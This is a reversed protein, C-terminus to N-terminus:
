RVRFPISRSATHRVDREASAELRLVYSGAQLGDLPLRLTFGHGGSPRRTARSDRQDSVERVPSSRADHVTATLGIAYPPDSRVRGNNDYVEAFLVLTDDPAFERATTPPAPLVDKLLPVDDRGAPADWPALTGDFAVGSDCVREHCNKPRRDSHRNQDPRLTLTDAASGTTLAVGSMVLPGDRFDPVELDYVVSGHSDGNASGVRIQYRGNPLDFQSVIRVGSAIVRRHTEADLALTTQHRFEPHIKARADTALHRIELHASRRGDRETFALAEADLQIALAVTATRGSKRFPVASVHMPLGSTALPNALATEVPTRAPEPPMRAKVYALQEVYGTRARVQLGPRTLRVDLEVHRGQKRISTSNFGLVYYSSTERELREFAETFMNSEIQAFGGTLEALARLNMRGDLSVPNPGLGDPDIPYIRINARTAASVAAHNYEQRLRLVGGNHDIIGYTDLSWDPSFWLVSKRGGPIRAMLEM